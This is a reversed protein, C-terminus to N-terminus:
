IKDAPLIRQLVIIFIAGAVFLLSAYLVEGEAPLVFKGNERWPWFVPLVGIMLGTLVAMTWNYAKRLLYHLLRVFSLLGVLIGLLFAGIHIYAWMPSGFPNSSIMKILSMIHEYQNLIVLVTSGSIGPLIMACIAIAGSIFVNLATNPLQSVGSSMILFGFVLGPITGTLVVRWSFKVERAVVYLSGVVLGAFTAWVMARYNALLMVMTHGMVVVASVIGAGLSILFLWDLEKFLFKFNLKWLHKKFFESIIYLNDILRTYIGTVFAITGGSIGPVSDALGMLFGRVYYGIIEVVRM